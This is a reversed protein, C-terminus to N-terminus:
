RVGIRYQLRDGVMVRGAVGNYEKAFELAKQLSEVSPPCGEAMFCITKIDKALYNRVRELVGDVDAFSFDADVVFKVEDVFLLFDDPADFDLNKKPSWTVWDAFLNGKFKKQGSSEVQIFCSDNTHVRIGYMLEDLNWITPEGGTIVVHPHQIQTVIDDVHM